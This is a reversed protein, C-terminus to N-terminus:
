RIRRVAVAGRRDRERRAARMRRPRVKLLEIMRCLALAVSKRMPVAFVAHLNTANRLLHAVHFAYLLGQM